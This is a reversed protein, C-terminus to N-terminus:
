NMDSDPINREFLDFSQRAELACDEIHLVYFLIGLPKHLCHFSKGLMNIERDINISHIGGQHGGGSCRFRPSEGPLIQHAKGPFHCLASLHHPEVDNLKARLCPHLSGNKKTCFKDIFDKAVDEFLPTPRNWRLRIWIAPILSACSAAM